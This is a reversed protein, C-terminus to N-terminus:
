IRSRQVKNNWLCSYNEIIKATQSDHNCQQTLEESPLCPLPWLSFPSQYLHDNPFPVSSTACWSSEHSHTSVGHTNNGKIDEETVELLPTLSSDKELPTLKILRQCRTQSLRFWWIMPFSISKFSQNSKLRLVASSRDSRNAEKEKLGHCVDQDKDQHLEWCFSTTCDTSVNESSRTQRNQTILM